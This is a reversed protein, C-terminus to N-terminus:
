LLMSIRGSAIKDSVWRREDPWSHRTAGEWSFGCLKVEWECAPLTSLAYRIGFFGASVSAQHMRCGTVGLEAYGDIYFQPPMIRVEKGATGVLEITRKVWDGARRERPSLSRLRRRPKRVSEPHCALVIKEAAKFATSELFSLAASGRQTTGGVAGLVLIDTRSGSMGASATPEDFRM